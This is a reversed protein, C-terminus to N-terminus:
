VEKALLRKRERELKEEKKKLKNAYIEKEKQEMIEM